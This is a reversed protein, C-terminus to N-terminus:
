IKNSSRRGTLVKKGTNNLSSGLSNKRKNVWGNTKLYKSNDLYKGNTHVPHETCRNNISDKSKVSNSDKYTRKLRSCINKKEDETIEKLHGQFKSINKRTYIENMEKERRTQDTFYSFYGNKKYFTQPSNRITNYYNDRYNNHSELQLVPPQLIKHVNNICDYVKSAKQPINVFQDKKPRTNEKIDYDNIHIMREKPPGKQGIM